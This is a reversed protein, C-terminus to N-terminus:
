TASGKRLIEGLQALQTRLSGDLLLDGIRAVVGGILEPDVSFEPTVEAHMRRSLARTLEARAAADLPRASVVSAPIRGAEADVLRQLEDRVAPLLNLRHEDVLIEAAARIEISLGLAQTVERLVAKREARPHIPTLVARTLEASGEIEGALTQVEGLLKARAAADAGLGFIARAYRRAVEGGVMM